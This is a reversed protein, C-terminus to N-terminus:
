RVSAAGSPCRRAGTRRASPSTPPAPGQRDCKGQEKQDPHEAPNGDRHPHDVYQRGTLATPVM